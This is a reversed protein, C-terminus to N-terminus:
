GNSPLLPLPAILSTAAGSRPDIFVRAPVQGANERAAQFAEWAARNPLNGLLSELPSQSSSIYLEPKFLEKQDLYSGPQKPVVALALGCVLIGLLGALLCVRGARPSATYGRSKM